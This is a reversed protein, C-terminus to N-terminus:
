HKRSRHSHKRRNKSSRRGGKKSQKASRKPQRRKSRRRGGGSVTKMRQAGAIIHDATLGPKLKVADALLVDVFQDIDGGGSNVEGTDTSATTGTSATAPTEGGDGGGDGGPPAFFNGEEFNTPRPTIPAGKDDYIIADPALGEFETQTLAKQPPTAEVAATESM